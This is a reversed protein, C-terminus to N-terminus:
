AVRRRHARRRGQDCSIMCMCNGGSASRKFGKAMFVSLESESPFEFIDGLEVYQVRFKQLGTRKEM